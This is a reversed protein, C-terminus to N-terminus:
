DKKRKKKPSEDESDSSSDSSDGDSNSSSSSSSSSSDSSSGDSDSESDSSSSSSSDSADRKRKELLRKKEKEQLIKDALGKREITSASPLRQTLTKSPPKSLMQTRSPRVLYARENQCEYTFHGFELCKQCQYGKASAQQRAYTAAGGGGSKRLQSLSTVQVVNGGFVNSM